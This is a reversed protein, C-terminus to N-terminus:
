RFLVECKKLTFIQLPPTQKKQKRSLCWRGGAGLDAKETKRSKRSIRSKRDAGGGLGLDANESKEEKEAKEVFVGEVMLDTKEANKAEAKETISTNYWMIQYKEM